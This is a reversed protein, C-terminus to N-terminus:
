KRAGEGTTAYHWALLKRDLRVFLNNVVFGVLAIAVVGALGDAIRFNEQARLLYVGIGNTTLLMESIVSVLLAAAVALRLGTMIIPLAAPLDIFALTEVRSLRLSRAVNILMPHNARVGDITGILIPFACTFVIMAIKGGDGAGAFLLAIPAVAPPPLPRLMNVIPEFIEGLLAVRGIAAGAPIMTAAAILLGIAARRLTDLIQFAIT